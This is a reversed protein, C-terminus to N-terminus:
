KNKKKEQQEETKLAFYLILLPIFLYILYISINTYFNVVSYQEKIQQPLAFLTGLIPVMSTATHTAYIIFKTRMSKFTSSTTGKWFAWVAFPFFPLQFLVECLAMARFWDPRERVLYDMDIGYQHMNASIQPLGLLNDYLSKGWVIYNGMLLTAPIHTVFYILCIWELVNRFM